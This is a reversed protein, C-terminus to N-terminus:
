AALARDGWGGSWRGWRVIDATPVLMKAFAGDPPPAYPGVQSKWSRWCGAAVDFQYDYLSRSPLQGPSVRRLTHSPADRPHPQLRRAALVLATLPAPCCHLCARLRGAVTCRAVFARARMAWRESDITGMAATRRLLADFREREKADPRQVLCAGLSWVCCFLFLGEM